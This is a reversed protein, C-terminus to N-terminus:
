VNVRCKQPLFKSLFNRTTNRGVLLPSLGSGHQLLTLLVSKQAFCTLSKEHSDDVSCSILPYEGFPARAIFFFLRFKKLIKPLKLSNKSFKPCKQVFKLKSSKEPFNRFSKLAMNQSNHLLQAQKQYVMKSINFIMSPEPTQPFLVFYIRQINNM